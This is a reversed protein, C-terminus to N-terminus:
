IWINYLDAGCGDGIGEEQEEGGRTPLDMDLLQSRRRRGPSPRSPFSTLNPQAMPGALLTTLGGDEVNEPTAQENGMRSLVVDAERVAQRLFDTLKGSKQWLVELEQRARVCSMLGERARHAEEKSRVIAHLGLLLVIGALWSPIKIFIPLSHRNILIRTLHSHAWTQASQCLLSYNSCNPDWRLPIPVADAWMSPEADLEKAMDWESKDVDVPKKISYNKTLTKGVIRNVKSIETFFAVRSVKGNPDALNPVDFDSDLMAIPLGVTSSGHRHLHYLCWFARHYLAREVPDWQALAASVHAVLEQLPRLGLASIHHDAASDLQRLYLHLHPCSM